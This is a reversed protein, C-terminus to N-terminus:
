DDQGTTSLEEKVGIIELKAFGVAADEAERTAVHCLAAYQIGSVSAGVQDLGQSPARKYLEVEGVTTENASDNVQLRWGHRRNSAHNERM